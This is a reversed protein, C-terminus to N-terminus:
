CEAGTPAPVSDAGERTHAFARPLNLSVSAGGGDRNSAIAFGSHREIVSRVLALGLGTGSSQTTFLPEFVRKITQPDFGPGDDAVWLELRDDGEPRAELWVNGGGRTQLAHVANRILNMVAQALLGLDGSVELDEPAHLHVTVSEPVTVSDLARRYLDAAGTTQLKLPRNRAMELLDTVIGNCVAVQQSIRQLHRAAREDGHVRKRLLFLSSEIVGLPNRLDHGISAALQGITALREQGRMREESDERYTHLMIALEMDLLRDIADTTQRIEEIDELERRAIAKLDVRMVNMATFMYHQPLGIEVHVRGIRCRKAFFDDDHPGQMGTRVFQVLSSKLRNVQTDGDTFVAMAAPFDMLVEYFHDAVELLHPEAKPLLEHLATVDRDGFDVYNKLETLLDSM